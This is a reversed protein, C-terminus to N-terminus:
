YLSEWEERSGKFVNLDVDGRVGPVRGHHDYQWFDWDTNASNDSFTCIWLQSGPFDEMIYKEWGSRNSYFTVRYGKMNLYEVMVQLRTRISDLPIGRPNGSEEVDIAIGLELPRNGIAGLLNKAQAVGDRDFRFFHYAGTKLGAHRAKEYNLSFNADRSSKGESAKLWVFEYGAKAVADLNAYGNHASLDIGKVPFRSADVYPPTTMYTHWCWWAAGIMLLSVLLFWLSVRIDKVPKRM